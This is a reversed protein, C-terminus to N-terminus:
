KMKGKPEKNLIKKVCYCTACSNGCFWIKGFNWNHKIELMNLVKKCNECKM